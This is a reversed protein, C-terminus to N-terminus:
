GIMVELVIRSASCTKLLDLSITDMLPRKLSLRWASPLRTTYSVSLALVIQVLLVSCLSAENKFICCSPLRTKYLESPLGRQALSVNPLHLSGYKVKCFSPVRAIYACSLCPTMHDDKVSLDRRPIDCDYSPEFSKYSIM